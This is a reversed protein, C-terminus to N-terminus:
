NIIDEDDDESVPDKRQGLGLLRPKKHPYLVAEVVHYQLSMQSGISVDGIHIVM